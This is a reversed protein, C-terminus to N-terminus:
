KIGEQDCESSTFQHKINIIEILNRIDLYMHEKDNDILMCELKRLQEYIMKPDLNYFKLFQDFDASARTWDDQNIGYYCDELDYQTNFYKACSNFLKLSFENNEIQYDLEYIIEYGVKVVDSILSLYSTKDYLHHYLEYELRELYKNCFLLIEFCALDHFLDGNSIALKVKNFFLLSCNWYNDLGVFM